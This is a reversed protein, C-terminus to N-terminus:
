LCLPLPQMDQHLVSFDHSGGLGEDCGVTGAAGLVAENSRKKPGTHRPMGPRFPGPLHQGTKNPLPPMEMFWGLKCCNAKSSDVAAVRAWSADCLGPLAMRQGLAPVPVQM